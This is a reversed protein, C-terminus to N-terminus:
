PRLSIRNKKNVTLLDIDSSKQAYNLAISGTIYIAKTYPIYPLFWTHRKIKKWKIETSKSNKIRNQITYANKLSWFGLEGEVRSDKKLSLLTNQVDMISVIPLKKKDPLFIYKKIEVVTLALSGMAQYYALTKLIADKLISDTPTNKTNKLM